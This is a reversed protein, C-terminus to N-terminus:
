FAGKQFLIFSDLRGRLDSLTTTDCLPFPVPKYASPHYSGLHYYYPNAAVTTRTYALVKPQEHPRGARKLHAHKEEELHLEGAGQHELGTSAAGAHGRWTEM